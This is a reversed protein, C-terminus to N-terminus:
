SKEARDKLAKNMAEFNSKVATDLWGELQGVMSGTFKESHTFRVKEEGIPQILFRHEGNLVDGESKGLWRLERDPEAALVTPSFVMTGGQPDPLHVELKADKVPEGTIKKIFPNWSPHNEFDTLIQWVKSPSTNIEIETVIEKMAGIAFESILILKSKSTNGDIM